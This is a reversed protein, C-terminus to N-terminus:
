QRDGNLWIFSWKGIMFHHKYGNRESFTLKHKTTDKWSFGARFLRLWGGGDTTYLTLWRTNINM